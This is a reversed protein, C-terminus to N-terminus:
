ELPELWKGEFRDWSETEVSTHYTTEFLNTPLRLVSIFHACRVEPLFGTLFLSSPHTSVVRDTERGNSQRECRAHWWASLRVDRPYQVVHFRACALMRMASLHSYTHRCGARRHKRTCGTYLGPDVWHHVHQRERNEMYEKVKSDRSRVGCLRRHRTM